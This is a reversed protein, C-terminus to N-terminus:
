RKVQQFYQNGLFGPININICYLSISYFGSPFKKRSTNEVGGNGRVKDHQSHRRKLNSLFDREQPPPIHLQGRDLGISAAYDCHLYLRLSQANMDLSDFHIHRLPPTRRKRWSSKQFWSLWMTPRYQLFFVHGLIKTGFRPQRMRKGWAAEQNGNNKFIKTPILLIKRQFM